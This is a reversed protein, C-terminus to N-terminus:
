IIDHYVLISKGFEMTTCPRSGTCVRNNQTAQAVPLAAVPLDQGPLFKAM